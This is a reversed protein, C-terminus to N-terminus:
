KFRNAVLKKRAQGTTKGSRLLRIAQNTISTKKPNSESIFSSVIREAQDAYDITSVMNKGKKELGVLM